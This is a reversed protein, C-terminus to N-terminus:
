IKEESAAPSGGSARAAILDLLLAAARCVGGPQGLSSEVLANLREKLKLLREPELLMELALASIAKPTAYPGLLEAVLREEALINPMGLHVIGHSGQRLLFELSQLLSGRYVIIMPKRLIMAELTATGSKTLVVDARALVDWTLGAAIVLPAPGAPPAPRGQGDEGASPAPVTVGENTALQPVPMAGHAFRALADGAQAMLRRRTGSGGAGQAQRVIEEALPQSAASALAVIFQVGPIRRAIEDAAGVLAPLIHRIEGRRSGPLLAVLPQAPDLGFREYFDAEPLAPKVLDLLPHGVFHADAGESRLLAESWPFPTVIRDTVAALSKERPRPVAHRRWSGPPFYYFVPCIARKKVWRALKVNFAGADIVVLADPPDRRLAREMEWLVWYMGPIKPLADAIGISAWPDSNRHLHVGAAAMFHGGIGWAEVPRPHVLARLASLLAAGQRDGSPEGAVMAIRLPELPNEPVPEGVM